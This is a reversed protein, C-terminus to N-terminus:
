DLKSLKVRSKLSAMSQASCFGAGYTAANAAGAATAATLMDAVSEGNLLSHLFAAVFTDGCGVASIFDIEPPVATWTTKGDTVLAGARGMSVVVLGIGLKTLEIAADRIEEVTNLEKGVYESLEHVNPKVMDPAATVGTKFHDGSSDLVTFVGKAKATKIARSYFDASIGPPASGSLVLHTMDPLSQLKDLLHESEEASITPGLENVDTETGVSPDVITICLRSEGNTKVFQNPIGEKDLSSIIMQGNCGGAFGTAIVDDGLTRLVRAVNIGKGGAASIDASPKNTRGFAFNEVTYTKDVAANITVTVIM